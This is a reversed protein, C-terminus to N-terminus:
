YRGSSAGSSATRKTVYGVYRDGSWVEVGTNKAARMAITLAELDGGLDFVPGHIFQDGDRFNFLYSQM